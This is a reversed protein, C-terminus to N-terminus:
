QFASLYNNKIEKNKLTEIGRLINSKYRDSGDDGDPFWLLLHRLDFRATRLGGCM